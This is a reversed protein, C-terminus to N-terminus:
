APATNGPKASAMCPKSSRTSSSFISVTFSTFFCRESTIIVNLCAAPQNVPGPM